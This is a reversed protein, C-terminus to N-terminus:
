INPITEPQERVRRMIEAKNTQFFTPDRMQEATCFMGGQTQANRSPNGPSYTQGSAQPSGMLYPRQESLAKLAAEVGVAKGEADFTILSRDLLKGAADEDVIGLKRAQREIQMQLDLQQREQKFTISETELEALRKSAREADSLQADRLKKLEAEVATKETRHKAAEDRLAKVYEADFVAKGADATGAQAQVQGASGQSGDAQVQGATGNAGTKPEQGAPDTSM